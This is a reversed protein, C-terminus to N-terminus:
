RGIRDELRQEADRFARELDRMSERRNAMWAPWLFRQPAGYRDNLSAITARAQPTKGGSRRGMTDFISARVGGPADAWRKYDRSSGGTTQITGAPWRASGFSVSWSGGPYRGAASSRTRQLIERAQKDLVDYIDRHFHKLHYVTENMGTIVIDSGSTTGQM